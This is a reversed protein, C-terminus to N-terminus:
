VLGLQKKICDDCWGISRRGAMFPDTPCPALWFTAPGCDGGYSDGPFEVGETCDWVVNRPIPGIDPRMLRVAITLTERTM